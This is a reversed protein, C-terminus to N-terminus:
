LSPLQLLLFRMTNILTFLYVNLPSHTLTHPFWGM